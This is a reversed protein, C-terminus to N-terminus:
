DLDLVSEISFECAELLVLDIDSELHEKFCFGFYDPGLGDIAGNLIGNKKRRRGTEGVATGYQAPSIKNLHEFVQM